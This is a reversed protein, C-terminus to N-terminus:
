LVAERSPLTEERPYSGAMMLGIKELSYKDYPFPGYQQGEFLVIIEDSM